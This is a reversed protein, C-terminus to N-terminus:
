QHIVVATSYSKRDLGRDICHRARFGCGFGGVRSAAGVITAGASREAGCSSASIQKRRHGSEGATGTIDGVGYGFTSMSKSRLVPPLDRCLLRLDKCSVIPGRGRPGLLSQSVQPKDRPGQYVTHAATSGEQTGIEITSSSLRLNAWVKSPRAQRPATVPRGHRSALSLHPGAEHDCIAAQSAHTSEAAVTKAQESTTTELNYGMHPEWAVVGALLESSGRVAEQCGDRRRRPFGGLHRHSRGRMTRAVPSIRQRHRNSGM